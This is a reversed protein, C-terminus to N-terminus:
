QKVVIHVKYLGGGPPIFVPPKTIMSNPSFTGIFGSNSPGSVQNQPAAIAQSVAARTAQGAGSDGGGSDTKLDLTVAKAFTNDQVKTSSSVQSLAAADLTVPKAAPADASATLQTGATLMVPPPAAAPKRSHGPKSEAKPQVVEVKGQIVTIKTEPGKDAKPGGGASEKGKGLSAAPSAAMASQVVFETGRVGMTATRTRIQFKGGPAIPKSVSVRTTGYPMSLDVNRDNGNKGDFKQVKFLASPGIDLITKDELLIKAKGDSATNIVDGEKVVFGPKMAQAKGGALGDQRVLVNGEVSVVKGAKAVSEAALAVFPNAALYGAGVLATGALWLVLKRGSVSNRDMYVIIPKSYPEWL